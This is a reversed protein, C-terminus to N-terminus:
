GTKFLSIWQARTGPASDIKLPGCAHPKAMLPGQLTMLPGSEERTQGLHASVCAVVKSPDPNKTKAAFFFAVPRQFRGAAM